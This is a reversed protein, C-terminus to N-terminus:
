GRTVEKTVVDGPWPGRKRIRRLGTRAVAREYRGYVRNVSAANIAPLWGDPLRRLVRRAVRWPSYSRRMCYALALELEDPSIHRPRYVLQASDSGDLLDGPLLRGAQRLQERFLTGEIPVALSYVPIDVGIAEVLNPLDRLYQSTDGDLGLLFISMVVIGNDHLYKIRQRYEPVKNHRKNSATLSEEALSELGVYIYRCGAKRMLRASEETLTDLSTQTAWFRKLPALAECLERFYRRDAGLNNDWFTIIKRQSWSWNPPVARLDRIVNPIPRHRYPARIASLVCFSCTFPCGRTVEYGLPVSFDTEVLDFRPVPLDNLDAPAESRYISALKGRILDAVLRSMIPEAEGVVVADATGAFYSPNLSPYLGGVIVKVGRERFAQGLQRTRPACFDMTSLFVVDVEMNVDADRVMEHVVTVDWSRPLLSAIHVATYPACESSHALARPVRETAVSSRGQWQPFNKPRWVLIVAVRMTVGGTEQTPM